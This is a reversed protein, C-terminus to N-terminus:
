RQVPQKNTSDAPNLINLLTPCISLPTIQEQSSGSVGQTKKYNRSLGVISEKSAAVMSQFTGTIKHKVASSNPPLVQPHEHKEKDTFVLWCTLCMKPNLRAIIPKSKPDKLFQLQKVYDTFEQSQVPVNHSM